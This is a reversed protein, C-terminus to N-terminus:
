ADWDIVGWEASCSIGRCRFAIVGDELDIGASGLAIQGTAAAETMEASALGYVIELPNGRGCNPCIEEVVPCHLIM